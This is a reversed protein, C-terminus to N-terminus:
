AANLNLRAKRKRNLAVLGMMGAILMPLGSGVAPIPVATVNPVLFFSDPGDNAGSIRAFFAYEHTPDLGALSFTGLTMDPYGTGNNPAVLNGTTSNIFAALVTHTTVDLFFFSELTQNVNTDNVDIGISFTLNPDGGAQLYNTLFTGSYNTASLTDSGLTKDDVIGSSFFLLNTQNGTNGFDNYGFGSPQLPQHDGCIICPLNTTQQGSPVAESLTLTNVGSFTWETGGLVIAQAPLALVFTALSAAVAAGLYRRM